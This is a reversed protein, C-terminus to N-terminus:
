PNIDPHKGNLIQEYAEKLAYAKTKKSGEPYPWPIATANKKIYRQLKVWWKKADPNAEKGIVKFYDGPWTFGSRGIAEPAEKGKEKFHFIYPGPLEAGFWPTSYNKSDLRQTFGKYPDTVKITSFFFGGSPIVFPNYDKYWISYEEYELVNIKDVAKWTYKNGRRKHLIIWAVSKESNIWQRLKDADNYTLYLLIGCSSAM